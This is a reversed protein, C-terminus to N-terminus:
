KKEKGKKAEKEGTRVENELAQALVEFFGKEQERPVNKREKRTALLEKLVSVYRKDISNLLSLYRSFNERAQKDYAAASLDIVSIIRQVRHLNLLNTLFSYITLTDKQDVGQDALYQVTRVVLAEEVRCHHGKKFSPCLSAIPCNDCRAYAPVLLDELDIIEGKSNVIFKLDAGKITDEITPDGVIEEVIKEVDENKAM